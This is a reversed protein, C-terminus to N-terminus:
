AYSNCAEYRAVVRWPNDTCRHSKGFAGFEEAKPMGASCLLGVPQDHIAGLVGLLM